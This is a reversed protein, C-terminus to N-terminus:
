VVFFELSGDPARVATIAADASRVEGGSTQFEDESLVPGDARAAASLRGPWARRLQPLNAWFPTEWFLKGIVQDRSINAVRLPLENIELTTGDPALVVMFQFQQDFVARFRAESERLAQEARDRATEDRLTLVAGTQKGDSGFLPRASGVALIKSGDPRRICWRAEEVSEGALVARALPLEHPPYPRGDETYLNYATSYSELPVELHAVGHM